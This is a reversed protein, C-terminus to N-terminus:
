ISSILLVLVLAIILSTLYFLLTKCKGKILSLFLICGCSDSERRCNDKPQQNDDDEGRIDYDVNGVSNIEPENQMSNEEIQLEKFGDDSDNTGSESPESGCRLVIQEVKSEGLLGQKIFGFRAAEQLYLLHIGCKQVQCSDVKRDWSDIPYFDFSAETFTDDLEHLYLGYGYWLFMHASNILIITTNEDDEQSYGRLFCNFTHTKGNKDRFNSECRFHIHAHFNHESFPEAVVCLAFGLFNSNRWHPSLKVHVSSGM